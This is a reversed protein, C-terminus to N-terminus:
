REPPGSSPLAVEYRKNGREKRKRFYGLGISKHFNWKLRKLPTDFNISEVIEALTLCRFWTNWLDSQSWEHGIDTWHTKIFREGKRSINVTNKLKLYWLYPRNGSFIFRSCNIMKIPHSPRKRTECFGGDDNQSNLISSFTKTLAIEVDKIRYNNKHGCNILVDVADFDWCGGGGPVQAFHGDVDQLSLINGIIEKHYPILRNWYNFIVFQHFANQFGWYYKNRISSGWFGTARNQREEHHCFWANILSKYSEDKHKEYQYTLFIALFMATNGSGLKGELCGNIKLYNYVDDSTQWKRLFSFRHKPMAGFIGLASICFCTLQQVPKSDLEGKFNNPIFYGSESDQFSNIYEVWSDREKQSWKIVEGFLDFIFLAFCSTFITSDAGESMRFQTPGVQLKLVWKFVKNRFVDQQLLVNDNTKLDTQM